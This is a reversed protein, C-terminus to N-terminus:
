IHGNGYKTQMRSAFENMTENEPKYEDQHFLYKPEPALLDIIIWPCFVCKIIFFPFSIIVLTITILIMLFTNLKTDKIEYHKLWEKIKKFM